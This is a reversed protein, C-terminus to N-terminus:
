ATTLDDNFFLMIATVNDPHLPDVGLRELEETDDPIGNQALTRKPDLVKFNGEVLAKWTYSTCHANHVLFKNQMEAVTEEDAFEVYNTQSTLTNIIRLKRLGKTVRGVVLSEDQWWPLGELPADVTTPHPVPVHAFRGEPTYPTVV